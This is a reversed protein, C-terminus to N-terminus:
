YTFDLEALKLGEANGYNVVATATYTGKKLEKPVVATFVRKDGPLSYFEEPELKTKKGTVKNLLEYTINGEFWTDGTNDIGLKLDTIRKDQEVTAFNTIEVNPTAAPNNTQYVKIAMRVTVKIAAGNQTTAPSPNLQTLYLMATHIPVVSDKNDVIPNMVITVEKTEGAALTFYSGPLIQINQACSTPLTGADYTVNNGLSDYMWDNISIGLELARDQNPNTVTITQTTKNGPKFYLRSPSATIGAQADVKLLCSMSLVLGLFVIRLFRMTNLSYM